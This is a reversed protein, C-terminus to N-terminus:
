ARRLGEILRDIGHYNGNLRDAERLGGPSSVNIETLYPGIVDIGAWVIENKQLFPMVADVIKIDESSLSTKEWRGGASINCLFSGEKPLRLGASVPEYFIVNIRKDGYSEIGEIFEQVMIDKTGGMTSSELMERLTPTDMCSSIKYIGKAGNLDIPKIVQPVSSSKIREILGDVDRSILTDPLIGCDEFEQLYHKAELSIKAQPPNVYLPGNIADLAEQFRKNNPIEFRNFVFDQGLSLEPMEEHVVRVTFKPFASLREVVYSTSDDPDAFYERSAYFLASRM